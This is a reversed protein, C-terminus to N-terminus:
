RKGFRGYVGKKLAAGASPPGQPPPPKPAPPPEPAAEPPPAWPSGAPKKAEPPPPPPEPAAPPPIWRAVQEEPEEAAAPPPAPPPSPRLPPPLPAPLPPPAEDATFPLTRELEEEEHLEMLTAGSLPDPPPPAAHPSPQAYASFGPQFPLASGDSFDPAGMMTMASAFAPLEDMEGVLTGTGVADPLPRAERRGPQSLPSAGAQFPLAPAIEEAGVMLTGAFAPGSADELIDKEDLDITTGEVLDSMDPWAIPQGPLEVGAAVYLADLAEDRPVPFVGRFSLTCREEDADIRLTDAHLTLSQGEAIGFSSLGHVRALGRAGPLRTRVRPRTPSVGDIVIWEDGRFFDVRQDAPAAQFYAWDFNDPLEVVPAKLLKRPMEGLLGRRAPWSAAIPGFGAARRTDALDLINPEDAADTAGVGFPNDSFGMGGFAREYVLPIKQLGGKKRILVTKDLLLRAGDFIGLRVPMQDISAGQPAHAHGTLFVEARTLYIAHDSAFRISQNARKGHHVEDAFIPQPEVRVAPGDAAFAFTAKAVVTVQLVGRFRWALAAVTVGDAAVAANKRLNGSVV